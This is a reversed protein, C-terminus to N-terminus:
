SFRITGVRRLGPPFVETMNARAFTKLSLPAEGPRLLTAQTFKGQVRVQFEEKIPGGYQLIHLLGGETALPIASLANWLRAARRRHTLVDIVDLAFESPNAIRRRYAIVQGHGHKYIIRDPEEKLPTLGAPPASDIVLSAGAKAHDLASNPLAKLGAAVLVQIQAPNPPPVTAALAPSAGRRYLLNAIETTAPGPEVLATIFPIVPRGWNAENQSLWKATQALSNWAALAAPDQKLLAARYRPEVSLVFNAGNIRAELLALELSDFPVGRESDNHSHALLPQREPHLAREVAALYGSSDVWPERSSSAFETEGGPGKPESRIGPWLGRTIAGPIAENQLIQDPALIKLLAEHAPERDPWRLILPPSPM